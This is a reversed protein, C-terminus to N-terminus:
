HVRDAPWTRASGRDDPDYLFVRTEEGFEARPRWDLQAYPSRPYKRALQPLEWDEVLLVPHRGIARLAALALDFDVDLQDWRLIPLTAYYRASGSEQGTVVVTDAPLASALYRGALSYRSEYRRMNFAQEQRARDVNMSAAAALAGLFVAARLPLPLRSLANTCLAGILVFLLPFAPLLFRLYSWEAFVGYPLYSGVVIAVAITALVLPQKLPPADVRRGRTAALVAVAALALLLAATEGALMRKAYAVANPGINGPTYLESATGYGSALPSGYLRWQMLFQAGAAPVLGAVFAILRDPRLRREHHGRPLNLVAFAVVAAFPLLNPRTLVALGTTAGAALPGNPLPSLAFLLALTWWATVAVDSMPQVVQFLVIPSTALLLAAALGARRSHLRAGAGYTAFVAVAGLIPVVLYAALEGGLLRVPAMALPLGAPYTPVLEGAEGGPRYGLPAFAWTANPWAVERALPEDDALHASAILRAESIYGSADSSSASYTGHAVGVGAAAAALM